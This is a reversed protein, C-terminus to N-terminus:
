SAAEAEALAQVLDLTGDYLAKGTIVGMVGLPEIKKLARIDEISTVGGSAVVPFPTAEAFRATAEVNVGTHMGDRAIDTFNVAAVPLGRYQNALDEATVQTTEVWGEVAVMGDRADIGLIIRDPFRKVARRVMEPNKVAETGVIVRAVGLSFLHEMTAEDRIGGGVQIPIKVKALIRAIAETNGPSKTFAGDLDVVHLRRAGLDQWRLAMAAPDDSYVTEADARGQLLRVCRGGRIDVAPIVIM